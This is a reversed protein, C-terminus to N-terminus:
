HKISIIGGAMNSNSGGFYLNSTERGKINLNLDLEQTTSVAQETEKRVADKDVDAVPDKVSAGTVAVKVRALEAEDVKQREAFVPSVFVAGFLLVACIISPANHEKMETEKRQPMWPEDAANTLLSLGGPPTNSAARHIEGATTYRCIEINNYWWRL